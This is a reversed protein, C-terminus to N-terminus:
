KQAFVACALLSRYAVCCARSPVQGANQVDPGEQGAFPSISMMSPTFRLVTSTTRIEIRRTDVKQASTKSWMKWLVRWVSIPQTIVGPSYKLMVPFTSLKYGRGGSEEAFIKIRGGYGTIATGDWWVVATWYAGAISRKACGEVNFVTLCSLVSAIVQQM